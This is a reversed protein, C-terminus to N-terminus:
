LITLWLYMIHAIKKYQFNTEIVSGDILKLLGDENCPCAKKKKM